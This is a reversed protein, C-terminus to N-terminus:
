LYILLPEVGTKCLPTCVWQAWMELQSPEPAGGEVTHIKPYGKLCVQRQQATYELWDM